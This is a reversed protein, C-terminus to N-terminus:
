PRVAGCARLQCVERPALPRGHNGDMVCGYLCHCPQGASSGYPSWGVVAKGNNWDQWPLIVEPAFCSALTRLGEEDSGTVVIAVDAKIVPALNEARDFIWTLNAPKAHYLHRTFAWSWAPDAEIAFVHEAYRALEFALVGVGAGIEVVVKGAIRKQVRSIIWDTDQPHLMTLYHKSRVGMRQDYSNREASDEIVSAIGVLQEQFPPGPPTSM